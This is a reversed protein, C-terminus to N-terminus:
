SQPEPEPDPEEEPVTPPQSERLRDSLLDIGNRVTKQYYELKEALEQLVEVAYGDAQARVTEAEATAKALIEEREALARRLVEHEGVLQGAQDRALSIIHDGKEQAQSIIQDREQYIQQAQKIEQPMSVRMQDILRLFEDEDVM